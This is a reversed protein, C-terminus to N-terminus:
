HEIVEDRVLILSVANREGGVCVVCVREELALEMAQRLVEDGHPGGGFLCRM